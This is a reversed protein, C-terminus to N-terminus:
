PQVMGYWHCGYTSLSSNLVAIHSIPSFGSSASISAMKASTSVSLLPETPKSSNTVSLVYVRQQVIVIVIVIWTDSKGENMSVEGDRM